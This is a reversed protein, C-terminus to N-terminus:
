SLLVSTYLLMDFLLTKDFGPINMGITGLGAAMLLAPITYRFLIEPFQCVAIPSVDKKPRQLAEKDRHPGLRRTSRRVLVPIRKEEKRGGSRISGSWPLNQRGRRTERRKRTLWERISPGLYDHTLQYRKEKKNSAGDDGEPDSPTVLHLEGDLIRILDEFESPRAVYGSARLLEGYPRLTGKIGSLGEPMLAKLVPQVSRRHRRYGPAAHGDGFTEELSGRAESRSLWKRTTHMSQTPRPRERSSPPRARSSARCRRRLLQALHDVVQAAPRSGAPSTWPRCRRSRARRAGAASPSRRISFSM